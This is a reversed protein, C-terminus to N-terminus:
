DVTLGKRQLRQILCREQLANVTECRYHAGMPHGASAPIYERAGAPIGNFDMAATAITRQARTDTIIILAIRDM